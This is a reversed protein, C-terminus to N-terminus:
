HSNATNYEVFAQDRETATINELGTVEQLAGTMPAGEKTFDNDPDLEDIAAVIAAIRDVQAEVAKEVVEDKKTPDDARKVLGM